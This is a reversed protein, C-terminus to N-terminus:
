VFRCQGRFFCCSSLIIIKKGPGLFATFRTNSAASPDSKEANGPGLARPPSLNTVRHSAQVLNTSKQKARVDVYRLYQFISRYLDLRRNMWCQPYGGNITDVMVQQFICWSKGLYGKSQPFGPDQSELSGPSTVGFWKMNHYTPHTDNLDRYIYISALGQPM